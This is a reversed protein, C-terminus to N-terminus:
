HLPRVVTVAHPEVRNFWAVQVSARDVAVGNSVVSGVSAALTHEQGDATEIGAEAALTGCSGAKEADNLATRISTAVEAPDLTRPEDGAAILGAACTVAARHVPHEDDKLARLGDDVRAFDDVVASGVTWAATMWPDVNWSLEGVRQGIVAAAGPALFYARDEDELRDVAASLIAHKTRVLTAERDTVDEFGTVPPPFVIVEDGVNRVYLSGRDRDTCMTVDLAASDAGVGVGPEATLGVPREVTCGPDPGLAVRAPPPDAACGALLGAIAGAVLIRRVM